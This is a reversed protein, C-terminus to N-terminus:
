MATRGDPHRLLRKDVLELVKRRLPSDEFISIILSGICDGRFLDMSGKKLEVCIESLDLRMIDLICVLMKYSPVCKDMSCASNGSALIESCRSILSIIFDSICKSEIKSISEMKLLITIVESFCSDLLKGM